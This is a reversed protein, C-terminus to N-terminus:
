KRVKVVEFEVEPYESGPPAVDFRANVAYLSNGFEAATTPIRFDPSTIVNVVEGSSRDPSLRIEAIQNFANQVVYLSRGDLLIGDGSPLSEGGLDIEAALGTLADVNYVTGTASNIIIITDLFPPYVEIGNSNFAGPVSAFDGGLSVTEPIVGDAVEGAPGLPIKHFVPLFSNTFFAAERTVIVDNVFGQGLFFTAVEAGTRTDIVQATGDFGGAVFLYGSRADFDLGVALRPTSPTFLTTIEGTQYDGKVIRGDVLSGAYFDHGIGTAIGEPGFGNPLPIVDPYVGSRTEVEVSAAEGPLSEATCATFALGAAAMLIFVLTRM